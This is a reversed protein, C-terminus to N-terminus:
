RMLILKHVQRTQSTKLEALYVGSAVARGQGDRGDWAVAYRGAVQTGEVLVRIKQGLASYITLQVPGLASLAYRLTTAPNFPNPYNALAVLQDEEAVMAPVALKAAPPLPGPVYAVAPTQWGSRLGVEADTGVILNAAILSGLVQARARLRITGNPAYLNGAFSARSGVNVALSVRDGGSDDNRQETGNVYLLIDAPDGGDTEPGFYTRADMNFRGSVRVTAPTQIVVQAQSGVELRSMDYTGSLLVLTGRSRVRVTGYRSPALTFTQGSRVDVRESGPTAAQFDPLGFEDFLPWYDSGVQNPTGITATPTPLVQETYFLTGAIVARNKLWVRPASVRVGEATTARTGLVLEARNGVLPRQGFDVVGVFGSHVVARAALEMSNTAILAYSNPTVVVEVIRQLAAANGIQDSTQYLITYSGEAEADVAGSVAIAGSLDGGVEDEATAGPEDYPTGLEIYLPNAGLLTLVPPTGDVIEVVVEDPASDLVGDNVILTLTHSGLALAVTPTPGTAIPAGNESWQYSLAQDEPDSSGSGDLAVSTAAVTAYPIASDAGANAVPPENVNVVTLTLTESDTLAPDVNDTAVVLM